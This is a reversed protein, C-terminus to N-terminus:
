ASATGAASAGAALLLAVIREGAHGDGFPNTATAMKNYAASDDLLRNAASVIASTETGVLLAVGAQVAEPRETVSRLVLVPVGLGPAEEQVGGSDTLILAARRMLHGFTLYDLAPALTIGPVAGLAAQVPGSVSPNPHVAYVIQVDGRQALARLAGIIGQLPAGFNERRHATVLILRRGAPLADLMAQTTASPPRATIFRLADIVTNGTVHVRAPAIGERLLASRALETPAFHLASLHDALVRNLEEPFPNARDYTRLGAEVHGVAIGAYAAALGAGLVTTTDGQVLVWDPLFDRLPVQMNVLVQALVDSPSQDPQMLNLDYDPKIGFLQLVQDLLERHQATVLVRSQVGAARQLAAVVPAMKVAEPRTGIVSLVRM